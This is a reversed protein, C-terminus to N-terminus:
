KVYYEMTAKDQKLRQLETELEKLITEIAYKGGYKAAISKVSLLAAKDAEMAEIQETVQPLMDRFQALRDNNTFTLGM